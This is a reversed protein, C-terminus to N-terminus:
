TLKKVRTYKKVARIFSETKNSEDTMEDYAKKLEEVRESISKQESEYKSSLKAFREDSIKGSANDEYLHEFLRDIESNRSILSNLEGSCIRKNSELVTKSYATVASTFEEEYKGAFRTLRRIESLVIQELFDVRVYHTSMCKKLKGKNNNPCNFYKISPNKQNFHYGLKCGCDSCVLLGSFMNHEGNSLNRRRLNGRMEQIREFTVRDRIPEHVNEFIMMDEPDNKFRKKSKYSISYTKFNIVDGCYERLNLIKIVTTSNWSYPGATHQKLPKKYGKSVAYATPTLIMKESLMTAIQNTGYGSLTLTDIMKVVNAAEEDIVWYNPDKEDRKYGYPPAGLPVGSSGKVKNSIRRKKSIDRSYWENFLNKIPAFESEGEFSDIGDSVAVLRIGNEPFFEEILRGVEIYNRGLRSLDKVFVAGGKGLKLQEIMENFKPRNMTVGSIGDDFFHVIHTYGKEKAVKTLLKKQTAISYSEGELDDDRSLREYLFAVDSCIKRKKTWNM